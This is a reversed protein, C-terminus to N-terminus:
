PQIVPHHSFPLFHFAANANGRTREATDVRGSSLLCTSFYEWMDNVKLVNSKVMFILSSSSLNEEEAYFYWCVMQVVGSLVWGIWKVGLGLVSNSRTMTATTTTTLTRYYHLLLPFPFSSPFPLPFLVCIICLHFVHSQCEPSHSFFWHSHIKGKKYCWSEGMMGCKGFLCVGFCGSRKKNWKAKKRM